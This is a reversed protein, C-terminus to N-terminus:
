AARAVGVKNQKDVLALRDLYDAWAQMMKRREPLYDAYNYAARIANREAHALQREIADPNWGQENLLTSAMSRFGHGTMETTAYGLRRLASLVTNDSMPRSKDLEGPFVFRGAGTLPRLEDLIEASQRSLPVLHPTKMKMREAPIRWEFKEFDFESWEAKRLEGPRVFVLPALCLACKTVLSGQYGKIARLLAGVGRPDTISAHHQEVVPALAGALDRAIDRDTRDTVVAYRFVRACNQLARHATEHAGRGEIRRLTTLLESAKIEAIPRTGLWPFINLELRRIIRDGHSPAWKRSNLAFWERAISEFTAAAADTSITEISKRMAGPDRGGELHKRAEDLKERAEKLSVDPYVGFSLRKEKGGIRYKFRWWRGGATSIEIYLGRGDFLRYPKGRAKANIIQVHTLPM